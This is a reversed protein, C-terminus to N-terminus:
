ALLSALSRALQGLAAADPLTVTLRPRGHDDHELCEALRAEVDSVLRASAATPERLPILESLITFAAALLQGGAEGVRERRALRDTEQQQRQLETRDVAAHPKAGLLVELRRQL